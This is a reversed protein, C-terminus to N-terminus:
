LKKEKILRFYLNDSALLDHLADLIDPKNLSAAVRITIAPGKLFLMEILQGMQERDDLDRLSATLNTVAADLAPTNGQQNAQLLEEQVKKREALSTEPVESKEPTLKTEYLKMVRERLKEKDIQGYEEPM